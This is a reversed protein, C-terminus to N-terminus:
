RINRIRVKEDLFDVSGQNGENVIKIDEMTIPDNDQERISNNYLTCAVSYENRSINITEVRSKM